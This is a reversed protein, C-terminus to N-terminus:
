AADQYYLMPVEEFNLSINEDHLVHGSFGDAYFDQDSFYMAYTEFNNEIDFSNLYYTLEYVKLDFSTKRNGYISDIEYVKQRSDYGSNDDDDPDLIGDGDSDNSLPNLEARLEDIDSISNASPIKDIILAFIASAILVMVTLCPISGLSNVNTAKPPAAGICPTQNASSNSILSIITGFSGPVKEAQPM